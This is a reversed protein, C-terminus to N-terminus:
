LMLAYTSLLSDREYEWKKQVRENLKGNKKLMKKKMIEISLFRVFFTENLNRCEIQWFLFFIYLINQENGCVYVPDSDDNSDISLCNFANLPALSHSSFSKIRGVLLEFRFLERM